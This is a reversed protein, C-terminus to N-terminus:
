PPVERRSKRAKHHLVGAALLAAGVVVFAVGRAVLNEFLDVFRAIALACLLLAGVTTPLLRGERAGRVLLGAAQALFIGNVAGAIL